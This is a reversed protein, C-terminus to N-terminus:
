RITRMIMGIATIVIVIITISITIIVKNYFIKEDGGVIDDYDKDDNDGHNKDSDTGDNYVDKHCLAIMM